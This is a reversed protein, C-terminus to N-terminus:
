LLIIGNMVCSDTLRTVGLNGVFVDVCENVDLKTVNEFSLHPQSLPSLLYYHYLKASVHNGMM